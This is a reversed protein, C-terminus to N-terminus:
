NASSVRTCEPRGLGVNGSEHGTIGGYVFFPAKAEYQLAYLSPRVWILRGIEASLGTIGIRWRRDARLQQNPPVQRVCFSMIRFVPHARRAAFERYTRTNPPARYQYLLRALFLKANRKLLLFVLNRALAKPHQIAFVRIRM